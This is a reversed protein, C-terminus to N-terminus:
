VQLGFFGKIVKDLREDASKGRKKFLLALSAGDERVCVNFIIRYSHMDHEFQSALLQLLHKIFSVM